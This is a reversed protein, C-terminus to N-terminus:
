CTKSLMQSPNIGCAPYFVLTLHTVTEETTQLQNNSGAKGAGPYICMM